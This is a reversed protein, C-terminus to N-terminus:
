SVMRAFTEIRVFTGMLTKLPGHNPSPPPGPSLFVFILLISIEYDRVSHLVLNAVMVSVGLSRRLHTYM